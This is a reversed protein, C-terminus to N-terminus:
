RRELRRLRSEADGFTEDDDTWSPDFAVRDLTTALAEADDAVPDGAFTGAIAPNTSEPLANLSVSISRCVPTPRPTRQYEGSPGIRM